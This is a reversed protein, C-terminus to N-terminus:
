ENKEIVTWVELSFFYNGIILNNEFSGFVTKEIQVVEVNKPKFNQLPSYKVM